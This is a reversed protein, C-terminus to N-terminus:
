RVIEVLLVWAGVIAAVIEALLAPVVWYFGGGTQTLLSLAGVLLFFQGVHSGIVRFAFRSKTIGIETRNARVQISGVVFSAGLAFGIIEAAVVGNPEGPMLLLTSLILAAVLLVLVEIARNVLFRSSTIRQLNISLAVFLLGTLGPAAGDTAAFALGWNAISYADLDRITSAM